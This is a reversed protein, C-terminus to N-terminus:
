NNKFLERAKLIKRAVYVIYQLMLLTLGLPVVLYPLLLSPGWLTESHGQEIVAFQWWWPWAQWIIVGIAIITVVSGVIQVIERPKPPLSTTIIDCSIHGGHKLTYAAGVWAAMMLLYISLEIQWYASVGIKVLVVGQVTVAAAVFVALGSAYGTIESINDITRATLQMSRKGFNNWNTDTIFRAILNKSRRNSKNLEM